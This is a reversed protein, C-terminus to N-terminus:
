DEEKEEAEEEEKEEGEEEEEEEGEEGEEEEEEEKKKKKMKKTKKKTRKMHRPAAQKRDPPVRRSDFHRNTVVNPMCCIARIRLYILALRAPPPTKGIDVVPAKQSVIRYCYLPFM